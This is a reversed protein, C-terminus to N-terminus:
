LIGLFSSKKTEILVFDLFIFISKEFGWFGLFCIGLWQELWSVTVPGAWSMWDKLSFEMRLLLRFSSVM